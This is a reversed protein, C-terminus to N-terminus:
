IFSLFSLFLYNDQPIFKSILEKSADNLFNLTEPDYIRTNIPRYIRM